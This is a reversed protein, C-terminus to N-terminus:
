KSDVPDNLKLIDSEKCVQIGRRYHVTINHKNILKYVWATTVKLLKAAEAITIYKEEM